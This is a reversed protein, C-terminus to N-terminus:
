TRLEISKVFHLRTRVRAEPALVEADLLPADFDMTLTLTFSRSEPLTLKIKLPAPPYAGILLRYEYASERVFPFSCDLLIFEESSTLRASIASPSSEPSIEVTYNRKNLFETGEASLRVPATRPPLTIVRHSEAISMRRDGAADRIVADGIPAPSDLVIRNAGAIEDVIQTVTVPQPNSRDYPSVFFLYAALLAVAASLLCASLISRTRRRLIGRGRFVLGLRIGYLIFPLIVAAILLNGRIPSLLIFRCFPLAPILFVEILGRVGLYSSPLFFLLKGWRTRTMAALLM